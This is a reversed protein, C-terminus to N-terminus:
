RRGPHRTHSGAAGLDAVAPHKGLGSPRATQGILGANHSKEAAPHWRQLDVRAESQDRGTRLVAADRVEATYKNLATNVNTVAAYFDASALIGDQKQDKVNREALDLSIFANDVAHAARHVREDAGKRLALLGDVKGVDQQARKLGDETQHKLDGNSTETALNDLTAWLAVDGTASRELQRLVGDTAHSSGEIADHLKTSAADVESLIKKANWAATTKDTVRRDNSRLANVQKAAAKENAVELSPLLELARVARKGLTPDPAKAAVPQRPESTVAQPKTKVASAGATVRGAKEAVVKNGAQSVVHGATAHHAQRHGVAETPNSM